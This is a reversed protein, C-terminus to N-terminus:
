QALQTIAIEVLNVAMYSKGGINWEEIDVVDLPNEDNYNYGNKWNYITAVTDDDDHFELEWEADTKDGDGNPVHPEGFVKVLTAYTCNISGQKSTGSTRHSQEWTLTTM